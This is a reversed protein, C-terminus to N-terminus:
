EDLDGRPKSGPSAEVQKRKRLAKNTMVMTKTRWPSNASRQRQRASDYGSKTAM